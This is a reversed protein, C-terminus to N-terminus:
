WRVLGRAHMAAVLIYLFYAIVFIFIWMLLKEFANRIKAVFEYTDLERQTSQSITRQQSKYKNGEM